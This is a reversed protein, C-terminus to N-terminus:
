PVWVRRKMHGFWRLRTEKIKDEISTVGVKDRIIINKIRDLKIYRCIWHIMRMEHVMRRQVQTKKIPWYKPGYLLAPRVIM